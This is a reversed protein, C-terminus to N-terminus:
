TLAVAPSTVTVAPPWIVAVSTTADPFAVSVAVVSPMSTVLTFAPVSLPTAVRFASFPAIVFLPAPITVALSRWAVALLPISRFVVTAVTVASLVASPLM